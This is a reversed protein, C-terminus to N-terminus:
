GALERSRRAAAAAAEALLPGLGKEGMLVKLAAETTGGPSSVQRRLDAPDAGTHDLLAAAGIMTARVLDRSTEPALGEAVGAAELAEIFAYLYAPASGSIATAADMQDESALEVAAGVPSFLAKAREAAEPADGVISAVGKGIGIATIPMVRAIRRGGFAARLDALRVGAAVSVIVAEPSLKAAVSEVVEGWIQPKVAMVVTRAEALVADPPNLRAGNEAAKQAAPSPNPDRVILQDPSFAGTLAWGDILAGGLRGAGLLLIPTM